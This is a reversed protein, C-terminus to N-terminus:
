QDARIQVLKLAKTVVTAALHPVQSGTPDIPHIFLAGIGNGTLRKRTIQM